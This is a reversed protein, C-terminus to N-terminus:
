AAPATVPEIKLKEENNELSKNLIAFLESYSLTLKEQLTDAIEKLETKFQLLLTEIEKECKNMLVFAEHNRKNKINKPLSNPDMGEFIIQRAYALAKEKDEKHYNGANSRLINEAIHGALNIKIQNILEDRTYLTRVNDPKETFVKGLEIPDNAQTKEKSKGNESYKAYISEEQLKKSVARITVKTVKNIKDLLMAALAHGAQHAALMKKHEEPLSSDDFLIRRIEEDFAEELHNENLAERHAKAKLLAGTLIKNLDEFTCRETEKALKEIYDSDINIICRNELERTLYTIRDQLSPYDFWIAKGFRGSRLLADDLNEPRNTIGIVIIHKSSNASMIGSMETLLQSLEKSDRERQLGIMDIEDLVLVTIGDPILLGFLAGIGTPSGTLAKLYELDAPCIALFNINKDVHNKFETGLAEALMSKGTGPPGYFLIGQAPKIGARRCAEENIVSDKIAVVADKAAQQGIVDDFKQKPDKKWSETKNEVPGGRLVGRLYSWKKQTWLKIAEWNNQLPGWLTAWTILPPLTLDVLNLGGRGLSHEIWGATTVNPQNIVEISKHEGIKTIQLKPNEGISEKLSNLGPVNNFGFSEFTDNNIRSLVWYGGLALILAKGTRSFVHHDSCFKEIRCYARNFLSRGVNQSERELSEINKQCRLVQKELEEPDFKESEISRKIVGQLDLEPVTKLSNKVLTRLHNIYSEIIDFLIKISYPDFATKANKKLEHITKRTEKIHALVNERDFNKIQNNNIMQGLHECLFEFTELLKFGADRKEELYQDRFKELEAQLQQQDEPSMESLIQELEAPNEQVPNASFESFIFFSFIFATIKIWNSFKSM